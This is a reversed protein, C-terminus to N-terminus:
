LEAVAHRLMHCCFNVAVPLAAIHTPEKGVRVELCYTNGGMGMPGMGLANIRRKLEAEMEALQPDPSCAGVERLLQRKSLMACSEFTGGLGVGLFVPPCPSGGAGSACDVVFDMVGDVGASPSLMAIRSMNESGFGKPLTWLKIRDGPVIREHIVAPTNDGTNKRTLPDLVSKRLYGDAYAQRVGEEVADGFFGGVVHADQGIDAFVVAMGTDQCAPTRERQAIGNNEILQALIERAHPLTEGQRADALLGTVGDAPATCAELFLLRVADRISDCAIERM